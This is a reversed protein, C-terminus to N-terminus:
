KHLTRLLAELCGVTRGIEILQPLNAPDPALTLAEQRAREITEEVFTELRAAATTSLEPV